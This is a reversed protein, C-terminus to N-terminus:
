DRSKKEVMSTVPGRDSDTKDAEYDNDWQNLLNEQSSEQKSVQDLFFELRDRDSREGPEGKGDHRDPKPQGMRRRIPDRRENGPREIIPDRITCFAQGRANEGM